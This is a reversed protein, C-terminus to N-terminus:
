NTTSPPAATSGPIGPKPATPVKAVKPVYVFEWESYKSRAVFSEYGEPFGDKRFPELLSASRVGTIHGGPDKILVWDEGTMPDLYVRRLHRETQLSRPDKVLDELKSPLQNRAGSTSFTYYSEIARRIQDGRWFLEAEKSQQVLTMWSSGTVAAALGLIVVAVLVVLLAIGRQNELLHAAGRKV